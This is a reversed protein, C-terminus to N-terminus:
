NYQSLNAVFQYAKYKYNLVSLRYSNCVRASRFQEATHWSANSAPYWYLSFVLKLILKSEAKLKLTLNLSYFDIVKTLVISQTMKPNGMYM